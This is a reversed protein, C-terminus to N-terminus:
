EKGLFKLVEKEIGEDSLGLQRRLMNANGWPVWKDPIGMRKVRVKGIMGEQELLELVASGFGGMLANEEVTLLKGTQEAAELILDRDLPKVFRANIVNVNVGKKKLREAARIAPHVMSGIAIITLEPSETEFVVEGKGIPIEKFEDDIPVGVAQGRPYRLMIPQNVKEVATYLMHGLENEDKPAMVIVNPPIRMFSLDFVGHHTPGDDGVIGARDLCFVVHLNQLCVDHIFQDYARQMFTSYIATVPIMGQTALGASMTVANQEAIGVDYAREPFRKMMEIMGTGDPMAATIGVIKDNKEALKVLAQSFAKTWKIPGEKKIFEGTKIDFKASSHYKTPNKVAPPYGLGKITRVHVVVPMNMEKAKELAEEVEKINHGNVPGIYAFGLEEFVIEDSLISLARLRLRKVAELLKEDKINDMLLHIDRRVEEFVPSNVIKNTLRNTYKGLAGVNPSISVGNENLVVIVPLQLYGITNLGEYAMGATIAGDGIVAVVHSDKVGKLKNALAMGLAASISTSAHGVVFFDHESEEPVPYGCIGGYQRLTHFRDWRGTVLKHPYSQHGVDWVIKDKPTTFVRHLALTLEVSGLNSSLHGANKSVTEIIKQRIKIALKDLTEYSYSKLESPEKPIPVEGVDVEMVNDPVKTELKSLDTNVVYKNEDM